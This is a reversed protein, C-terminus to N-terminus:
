AGELALVRRARRIVALDIMEGEIEFAGTGAAEAQEFAAIVSRAREVEDPTPTFAGHIPEIQAPHICAKGGMGMRRAAAAQAALAPANRIEAHVGDLPAAIGAAASDTVLKSRSYALAVDDDPDIGLEAALDISGLMLRRCLPHAAIEAADRVGAATEVLAIAPPGDPDLRDLAEASAKAVVLGTPGLGDLAELDAALEPGANVRVTVTREPDRGALAAAVAARAAPKASPAVGDELDLIVGDAPSALAKAIRAPADGPVFLLSRAAELGAM